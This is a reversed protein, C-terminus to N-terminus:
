RRIRVLVPAQSISTLLAGFAAVLSLTAFAPLGYLQASLASTLAGSLAGGLITAPLWAWALNGMSARLVLAQGAGIVLGAAALASGGSLVATGPTMSGSAPTFLNIVSPVVIIATILNAGVTAPVWWYADLKFRRLVLWQAGSLMMVNAVLALYGLDKWLIEPGQGILVRAQWAALTGAVGGAISAAIWFLAIRSRGHDRRPVVVVVSERDEPAPIAMPAM